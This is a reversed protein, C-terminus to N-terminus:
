CGSQDGKLPDRWNRLGGLKADLKFHLVPQTKSNIEYCEKPTRFGLRKRPRNNLKQAIRSCHRQNIQAMSQRKPLYQRILGNTNESSGREWSHYPAAFFFKSGTAAEIERYGHFETGNDATVTHTTRPAARILRLARRNTAEVTRAELKGIMVYGTKRDVLTVVCHKDSINGIVTDAELHGVRSRNQAGAPRESIPRKGALRGRSDYAGYRKRRQKPSCRLHQHLDGGQKRDRWIHRYITEHSISLQRKRLLWGAAQEPSWQQKLCAEVLRWDEPGFRENRRSRGRRWRANDDALGPRYVRGQRDKSNRRVERSITSRHRGLARAIAAQNCGQKRLASLAYREGSTLQRYRNM